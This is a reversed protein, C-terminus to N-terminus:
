SVLDFSVLILTSYLIVQSTDHIALGVWMGIQESTALLHPALHPYVLMGATGFAVVNAVAFSM